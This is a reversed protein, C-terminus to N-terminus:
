KTDPEKEFIIYFLLVAVAVTIYCDAINFVPFDILSFYLFDPVYGSMARDIYNGVTGALIFTLLTEFVTSPKRLRSRILLFVIVMVALPTIILFFPRWGTMMSFAAGKNEVYCLEFVGKILVVPGNKLRDFAIIKSVRDITVLFAFLLTYILFFFRNSRKM